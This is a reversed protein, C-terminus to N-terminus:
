KRRIFIQSNNKQANEIMDLVLELRQNTGDYKQELMDIKKLLEKKETEQKEDLLEAIKVSLPKGCKSCMTSNPSNDCDCVLCKKLQIKNEEQTKIGYHLFLADDVDSNIMHVYRGPMKSYATWGHRKRLQSETMFKATETAESHRFLKLNIRKSIEAMRCRMKLMKMSAAYSFAEGYKEKKLTIWLPSEPNDKFPHVDIWKALNPVSRILRITRAGTKGDVHIVAGYKDFKVHKLQLNLIEGPRTGAESHCDIFARDRANEGCVHLLRTIDSETVLDERVIKDRVTKLKVSKTEPPDGVEKLDRSGLKYWRFFMKLVKKLDFSTWTEQGKEDAYKDMIKFVLEDIDEKTVDKWDKELTRSLNLLGQSHIRRTAKSISQRTMVKDYEIILKSNEASLDKKINAFTRELIRDYDYIEGSMKSQSVHRQM